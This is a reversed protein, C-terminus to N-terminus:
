SSTLISESCRLEMAECTSERTSSSVRPLSHGVGCLPKLNGALNACKCHTPADLKTIEAGMSTLHLNCDRETPCFEISSIPSGLHVKKRWHSLEMTHSVGMWALQTDLNPKASSRKYGIKKWDSIGLVMTLIDHGKVLTCFLFPKTGDRSFHCCEIKEDLPAWEDIKWIRSSGDTSTSVSIHMGRFSKHAKPEDLIMNLNPRRFVRLHGDEGGIALKAGDTSFALCGLRNSLHTRCRKPPPASSREATSLSSPAGM